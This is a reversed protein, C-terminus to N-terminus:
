GGNDQLEIWRELCSDLAAQTESLILLRAQVVEYEQEYFEANTTEKQLEDLRAELEEIHAPLGDLERQLVYSLKKQKGPRTPLHQKKPPRSSARGISLKYSAALARGRASWDSYGGVHEIVQNTDEFVLTSTVVNDLFQRDHSVLLLTGTYDALRAELIELTEVDLDNTPEDLVLLNAPRTFMQALIVRNREGGSLVKVLSRAREATFLFDGMYSIIHKQKGGQLVFDSGGAVNQVVTKEEDLKSRLQDLYLIEINAGLTVQGLTPEERGLLVRLLTSKGVGNNGIIGVRDGRMIEISFQEFLMKNDYGHSINNAEIVRRSSKQASDIAFSANGIMEVRAARERRMARLAKVRDENRTRRAKIGARIWAEEKALKKDFLCRSEREIEAAKEKSDLYTQYDGPWSILNGRDLEVIRSCLENLFVRDHTIFLITSRTFSLYKELWSISAFDLHNTPEDLLLLDPDNILAQALGVRRQWGGSLTRLRQDPELGLETIISEVKQDLSWAEAVDISSQLVELRKLGAKNLSSQVSLQTFEQLLLQSEHMGKAVFDRVTLGDCTSLNQKLYGIRLNARRKVSGSDPELSGEIIRLLSTKGVGNRGLIGVREGATITLNGNDLLRQEGFGLNIDEIQLLIM